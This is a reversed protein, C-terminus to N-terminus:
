RPQEMVFRAFDPDTFFKDSDGMDPSTFDSPPMVAGGAAYLQTKSVIDEPSLQRAKTFDIKQNTKNIPVNMGYGYGAFPDALVMELHPDAGMQEARKNAFIDGVGRQPSVFVMGAEQAAKDTDYDGAYGRYFGQLMKQEKVPPPAVESIVEEDGIRYPKLDDLSTASRIAETPVNEYLSSGGSLSIKEHPINKEELMNKISALSEPTLEDVQMLNLTNPATKETRGMLLSGHELNVSSPDHPAVGLKTAYDPDMLSKTHTNELDFVELQKSKPNYWFPNTIPEPTAAMAPAAEVPSYKKLVEPVERPIGTEITEDMHQILEKYEKDPVFRPLKLGLDEAYQLTPALEYNTDRLGANYFEDVIHWDNNIVFDQTYPDYKEIPRANGKGKIQAINYVPETSIPKGISRGWDTLDENIDNMGKKAIYASFSQKEEETADKIWRKYLMTKDPIAEITAHSRGKPDRLSFIRTEGDLVHQCYGGVCHGMSDGELKLAKALDDKWERPAAWLNLARRAEAEPKRL